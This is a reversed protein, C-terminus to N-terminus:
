EFVTRVTAFASAPVETTAEYFDTSPPPALVRYGGTTRSYIMTPTIKAGVKFVQTTTSEGCAPGAVNTALQVFAPTGCAPTGTAIPLSKFGFQKQSDNGNANASATYSIFIVGASASQPM